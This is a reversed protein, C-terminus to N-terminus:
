EVGILLTGTEQRGDYVVTDVALYGDRVRAALRATLGTPTRTGRVLTVLEGGAALMRDLVAVATEEVERGILAVDGDVLGLADGAQCVGATTWSRRDAVSVEGYRTAGAAATMAVVDEDFRSAPEHVALAALGQVVARTPIVAARVGASRLREAAEGAVDRLGAENPLLVAEPARTRLVAATLETVGPGPAASVPTGPRPAGGGNAGGGPAEFDEPAIDALDTRLVTAGAATCLDELGDGTVMTVVARARAPGDLTDVSDAAVAAAASPECRPIPPQGPHEPQGHHGADELYTIRLRHPRGAEIGMEVAAGADRTHVHVNWLGEGGIVVLSDGLEALKTRLGRVARDSADLLYMVEYEAIGTAGGLGAAGADPLDTAPRQEPEAPLGGSSASPETALADALAGLVAVLGQGGADVVGAETLAPLQGRTAVLATRARAHADRAVALAEEAAPVGASASATGDDVATTAIALPPPVAAAAVSLMTGEVPRAVAEYAGAVARALARRLLAGDLVEDGGPRHAVAREEAAYEEAMGRLLQALITGSNGCAGLLAGHSMAHLAAAASEGPAERLRRAAAEMTRCLNSGTDGDAVPFVNIGDLEARADRLADLAM